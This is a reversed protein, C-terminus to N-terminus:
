ALLLNRWHGFCFRLKAGYGAGNRAQAREFAAPHLNVASERNRLDLIDIREQQQIVHAGDVVPRALVGSEGVMRVATELGYGIEQFALHLVAIREAVM